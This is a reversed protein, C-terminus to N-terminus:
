KLCPRGAVCATHEYAGIDITGNANVRPNGAIDLPAFGYATTGANLGPSTSQLTFNGGYNVFL